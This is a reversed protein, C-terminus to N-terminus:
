RNSRNRQSLWLFIDGRRAMWIDGGRLTKALLSILLNDGRLLGILPIHLAVRLLRFLKEVLDVVLQLLCGLRRVLVRFLRM